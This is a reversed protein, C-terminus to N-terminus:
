AALFCLFAADGVILTATLLREHSYVSLPSGNVKYFDLVAKLKCCFPCVDYQFLVIDKPVGHTESPLAYM